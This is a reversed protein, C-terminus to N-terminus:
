GRTVQVDRVQWLLAPPSPPMDCMCISSASLPSAPTHPPHRPVPEAQDAHEAGALGHASYAPLYAPECSMPVAPRAFSAAVPTLSPPNPNAGHTRVQRTLVLATARRFPVEHIGMGVRRPPLPHSPDPLSKSLREAHLCLTTPPISACAPLRAPGADKTRLIGRVALRPPDMLHSLFVHIFPPCRHHHPAPTWRTRSALAGSPVRGAAADRPWPHNLYAPLQQNHDTTATPLQKWQQRCQSVSAHYAVLSDRWCPSGMPPTRRHM